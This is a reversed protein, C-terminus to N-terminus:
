SGDGGLSGGPLAVHVTLRTRPDADDRRATAEVGFVEAAATEIADRLGAFTADDNPQALRDNFVLRLNTADFRLAGAVEEEKELRLAAERLERLCAFLRARDDDGPGERKRNYLLGFPGEIEDIVHDAEFGILCVLPGDPVHTYDAVDYPRGGGVDDQIWRTFIAAFIEPDLDGPEAHLKAAIKAIPM